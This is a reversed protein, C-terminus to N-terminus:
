RRSVGPGFSASLATSRDVLGRAVDIRLLVGGPIGLRFGLGADAQLPSTGLTADPRTSAHALDLFVAAGFDFPEEHAAWWVTELGGYLLGRGFMPGTFVGDDLLRHARALPPRGSGTGAGPWVARPAGRTVYSGGVRSQLVFGRHELRSIWRVELDGRTFPSRDARPLWAEGGLSVDIRDDAGRLYLELGLAGWTGRQAWRDLALTGSWRVTPSIWTSFGVFARSREEVDVAALASSAPPPSAEPARGYSYSERETFAGIKWVGPAYLRGPTALEIGILRRAGEWRWRLTWLEGGRTPSAVPLRLGQGLLTGVTTHVVAAQVPPVVPRELVAARVEVRGDAMPRYDVRTAVASPLMSLRRRSLELSRRTLGEGTRLGSLALVSAQRTRTPSDLSVGDIFVPGLRNWGQLAASEDGALYHSAAVLEIALTDEPDLAVAREALETAEAARQQRIRVGALERFARSDDPCIRTATELVAEADALEGTRAQGVAQRILMTCLSPSPDPTGVGPVGLDTAAPEEDNASDADNPSDDRADLRRSFDMAASQDDPLVLMAWQDAGSWAREFRDVPSWQYPSIAPDHYVVRDEIWGVVTVYHYRGPAVEILAIIPRGRSLHHQLTGLDGRFPVTKWGLDATAQALDSTRIGEGTETILGAFREPRVDRDGWYRLTMAVAAGGCLAETQGLYPVDLVLGSGARDDGPHVRREIEQSAVTSPLIAFVLAGVMLGPRPRRIMSWQGVRGPRETM